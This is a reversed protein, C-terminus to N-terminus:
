SVSLGPCAHTPMPAMPMLPCPDYQLESGVLLRNMDFQPDFVHYGSSNKLVNPRSQEILAETIVKPSHGLCNVAWGQVFDLYRKGRHDVLWSGDGKVFVIEPRETIDMLNGFAFEQEAV